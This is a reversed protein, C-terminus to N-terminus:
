GIVLHEMEREADTGGTELVECLLDLRANTETEIVTPPQELRVEQRHAPQRVPFALPAV